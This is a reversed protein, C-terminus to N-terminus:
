NEGDKLPSNGDRFTEWRVKVTLGEDKGGIIRFGFPEKGQRNLVMNVIQKGM